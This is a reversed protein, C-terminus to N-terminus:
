NVSKIPYPTEKDPGATQLIMNDQGVMFICVGGLRVAGPSWLTTAKLRWIQHKEIAIKEFGITAAAKIFALWLENEAEKSLVEAQIQCLVKGGGAQETGHIVLSTVEAPSGRLVAEDGSKLSLLAICIIM